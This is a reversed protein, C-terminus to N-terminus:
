REYGQCIDDHFQWVEQQWEEFVAAFTLAQGVVRGIAEAAAQRDEEPQLALRSAQTHTTHMAELRTLWAWFTM